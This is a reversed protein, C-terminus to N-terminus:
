PNRALLKQQDICFESRAHSVNLSAAKCYYDLTQKVTSIELTSFTNTPKKEEEKLLITDDSNTNIVPIRTHDSEADIALLPLSNELLTDDESTMQLCCLADAAQHKM